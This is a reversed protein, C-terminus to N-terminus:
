IKKYKETNNILGLIKLTEISEENFTKKMNMLVSLTFLLLVYHKKFIYSIKTEKLKKCKNCVNCYM